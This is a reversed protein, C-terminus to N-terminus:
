ATTDNKFHAVDKRRLKLFRGIVDKVGYGFMMISCVFISIQSYIWPIYLVDTTQPRRIAWELLGYSWRVFFVLIVLSVCSVVFHYLRLKAPSKIIKEFLEIRLHSNNHSALPAGLMYLWMVLILYIEPLSQFSHSFIYRSVVEILMLITVGIMLFICIGNLLSKMKLGIFDGIKGVAQRRM